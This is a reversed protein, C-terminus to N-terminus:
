KLREELFRLHELIKNKEEVEEEINSRLENIEDRHMNNEAILKDM